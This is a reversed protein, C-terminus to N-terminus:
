TTSALATPATATSAFPCHGPSRAMPHVTDLHCLVLVGPGDGGWSSAIELHDGTTATGPHRTIRAGTKAFDHAAATMARNVGDKDSTPSEIEVWARIGALLGETELKM